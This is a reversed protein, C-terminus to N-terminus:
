LIGPLKRMRTRVLSAGRGTSIRLACSTKLLVRKSGPRQASIVFCVKGGVLEVVINRAIAIRAEKTPAEAKAGADM